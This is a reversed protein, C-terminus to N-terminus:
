RFCSRHQMQQPVDADCNEANGAVAKKKRRKAKPEQRPTPAKRKCKEKCTYGLHLEPDPHQGTPKGQVFHDGCVRSHKTPKWLKRKSDVRNVALTWAVRRENNKLATPFPFLQFPPECNCEESCRACKIQSARMSIKGVQKVEQWQQRM